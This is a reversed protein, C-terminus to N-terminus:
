NIYNISRLLKLAEEPNYDRFILKSLTSGYRKEVAVLVLKSCFTKKNRRKRKWFFLATFISLFAQVKSYKLLMQSDLVKKLTRVERPSYDILPNKVDWRELGVMEKKRDMLKIKRVGKSALAEYLYGRCYIGIHYYNSQTATKILYRFPNLFARKPTFKSRFAIIAGSRIIERPESKKKIKRIM